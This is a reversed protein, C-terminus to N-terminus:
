SWQEITRYIFRFRKLNLQAPTWEDTSLKMNLWVCNWFGVLCELHRIVIMDLHIVVVVFLQLKKYQFINPRHFSYGKINSFIVHWHIFGLWIEFSLQGQTVTPLRQNTTHTTALSWLPVERRWAKTFYGTFINPDIFLYHFM